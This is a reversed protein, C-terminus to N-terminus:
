VPPVILIRYAEQHLKLQKDAIATDAGFADTALEPAAFYHIADVNVPRDGKTMREAIAAYIGHAPNSM